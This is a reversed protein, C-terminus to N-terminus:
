IFPSGATGPLRNVLLGVHDFAKLPEVVDTKKKAQPIVPRTAVALRWASSSRNYRIL